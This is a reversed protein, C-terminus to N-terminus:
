ISRLTKVRLGQHGKDDVFTETHITWGPKVTFETELSQQGVHYDSGSSWSKKKIRLVTHHAM